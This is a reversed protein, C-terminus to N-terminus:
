AWYGEDLVSVNNTRRDDGGHPRRLVELHYHLRTDKDDGAARFESENRCPGENQLSGTRFSIREDACDLM